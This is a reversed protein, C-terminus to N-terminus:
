VYLPPFPGRQAEFVIEICDNERIFPATIGPLGASPRKDGYGLTQADVTVLGNIDGVIWQLIKEPGSTDPHVGDPKAMWM